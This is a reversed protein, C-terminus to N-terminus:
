RTHNDIAMLFKKGFNKRDIGLADALAVAIALRPDARGSELQSLHKQTLGVRGALEGQSLGAAKRLAFLSPGFEPISFDRNSRPM